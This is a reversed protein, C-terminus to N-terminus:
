LNEWDEQLGLDAFDQESNITEEDVITVKEDRNKLPLAIGLDYICGVYDQVTKASIENLNEIVEDKVALNEESILYLAFSFYEIMMSSRTWQFIKNVRKDDPELYQIAFMAQDYDLDYDAIQDIIEEPEPNSDFISETLMLSYTLAYKLNETFAFYRSSDGLKDLDNFADQIHSEILESNLKAHSIWKIIKIRLNFITPILSNISAEIPEGNSLTKRVQSFLKNLESKIEENLSNGVGELEKSDFSRQLSYCILGYNNGTSVTQM